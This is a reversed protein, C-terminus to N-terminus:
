TGRLRSYQSPPPGRHTQEGCGLASIVNPPPLVYHMIYAVPFTACLEFLFKRSPPISYQINFGSRGSKTAGPHKASLTVGHAASLYAVDPNGEAM